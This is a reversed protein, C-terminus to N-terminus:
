RKSYDLSDTVEGCSPMKSGFYPNKIDRTDSLWYGGKNNFAMPCYQYFVKQGDYKVTRMLSWLADTIMNFETRKAELDKEAPIAKASASITTSFNSATEKIMGTSDGHIENVKLSDASVQLSKAAGNVLITDSAVFADKLSFYSSLLNHFSVKFPESNEGMALPVPKVEKNKNEPKNNCFRFALIVTILVACLVFMRKNM